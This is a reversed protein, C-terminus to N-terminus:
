VALLHSKQIIKIKKINKSGLKIMEQSEVQEPHLGFKKAWIDKFAAM